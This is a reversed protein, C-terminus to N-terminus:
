QTAIDVDSSGTRGLSKKVSPPRIRRVIMPTYASCDHPYVGLLSPPIRTPAAWSFDRGHPWVVEDGVWSGVSVGVGGM